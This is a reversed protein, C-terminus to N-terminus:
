SVGTLWGADLSATASEGNEFDLRIEDPAVVILDRLGPSGTVPHVFQVQRLRTTQGAEFQRVTPINETQLHKQRSPEVGEHFWSCVDEVGLRRLHRGNWPAQPRGGNSIWLLTSPFSDVPRLSVWVYGPFTVATWALEGAAATLMVLDECGDFAPYEALSVERGDASPIARLSSFRAGPRLASREGPGAFGDPYVSGFRFPSTRLPCRAGKPFELIPHHGYNYWGTVGSIRHEQYLARDGPRLRVSKEVQGAFDQLKRRLVLEGDSQDALVWEGNATEGHPSYRSGSEGFPFCFFDGRLVRVCAPQDPFDEPSWPPLSYPNVRKGEGLDFRVPAIHGGLETIELAVRDSQLSFSKM